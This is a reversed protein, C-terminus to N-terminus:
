REKVVHDGIVWNFYDYDDKRTGNKVEDCLVLYRQYYSYTQLEDINKFVEEDTIAGKIWKDLEANLLETYEANQCGPWVTQKMKPFDSALWGALAGPAEVGKIASLSAGNEDLFAKQNEPATFFQLFKVAADLLAPDDKVAPEMINVVFDVAPKDPGQTFEPEVLWDYTDPGVPCAPIMSAEFDRETNSNESPIAWTGDERIGVTGDNWYQAHNATDYGPSLVETFWVKYQKWYERAYEHKVPSYFGELIGRFAEAGNIIGDGDYDAGTKQALAEMFFPGVNFQNIWNDHRVTACFSIPAVGYYGAAKIAKASNVLEQWTKPIELNLEKFMDENILFGTAPGLFTTIPVAQLVGEYRLSSNEDVLYDLFIDGWRENGEVYPNPADMYEDMPIYWGDSAFGTGWSFAIAPCADANMQTVLWQRTDEILAGAPKTRAWEITINPYMSMFEDAIYQVVVRVDPNEATAETNITPNWSHFDVLLTIEQDAYEYVDAETTAETTAETKDAAKTTAQTTAKTTAQTTAKTTNETKANNDNGCGALSLIM